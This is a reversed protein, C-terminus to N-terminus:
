SAKPIKFCYVFTLLTTYNKFCYLSLDRPITKIKTKTKKVVILCVLDIDLM